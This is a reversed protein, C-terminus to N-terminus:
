GELSIEELFRGAARSAIMFTATIYGWPENEMIFEGMQFAIWSIRLDGRLIRGLQRSAMSKHTVKRVLPAKIM